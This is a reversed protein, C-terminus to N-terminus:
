AVVKFFVVFYTKSVSFLKISCEAISKVQLLSGDTQLFNKKGIKSHDSLVPKVRKKEELSKSSMNESLYFKCLTM